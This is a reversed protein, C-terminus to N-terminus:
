SSELRSKNQTFFEHRLYPNEQTQLPHDLKTTNVDNLM